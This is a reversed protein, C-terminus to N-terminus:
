INDNNLKRCNKGLIHQKWAKITGPRVNDHCKPCRIANPDAKSCGKHEHLKEEKVPEKCNKCEQYANKERCETLLHKNINVIEIIFGCQHCNTLMPCIKYLHEDLADNSAIGTKGCYDCERSINNDIHSLIARTENPTLSKLLETMKETGQVDKCENLLRKSEERIVNSSHKFASIAFDIVRKSVVSKDKSGEKRVLEELLRLKGLVQIESGREVGDKTINWILTTISVNENEIIRTLTNIVRDQIRFSHNALCNTLAELLSDIHTFYISDDKDLDFPYELISSEVLKGTKEIVRSDNDALLISSIGLVALAAKDKDRIAIKDLKQSKMQEQLLDLTQLRIDKNISFLRDLIETKISNNYREAVKRVKTLVEQSQPSIKAKINDSSRYEARKLTEQKQVLSTDAKYSFSSMTQKTNVPFQINMPAGLIASPDLLLGNRVRMMEMSVMNAKDNAGVKIANIQTGELSNLYGYAQQLKDLVMKLFKAKDFENRQAAITKENDLAKLREQIIINCLLPNLDQLPFGFCNVAILGVQSYQNFENRYPEYLVLKLFDCKSTIYVSKLERISFRTSENSSLSLYGLRHFKFKRVDDGSCYGDGSFYLLDIRTAIKINHSLLQVQRLEVKTIFQLILTQPYVPNKM